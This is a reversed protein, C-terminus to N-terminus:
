PNLILCSSEQAFDEVAHIQKIKTYASDIYFDGQKSYGISKLVHGMFLILYATLQGGAVHKYNKATKLFEKYKKPYDILEDIKTLLELSGHISLTKEKELQKIIDIIKEAAQVYELLSPNITTDKQKLKLKIAKYLDDHKDNLKDKTLCNPMIKASNNLHYRANSMIRGPLIKSLDSFFSPCFIGLTFYNYSAPGEEASPAPIGAFRELFWQASIACNNKTLGMDDFTHKYYEQWERIIEDPDAEINFTYISNNGWKKVKEVNFPIYPTGIFIDKNDSEKTVKTTPTMQLAKDYDEDSITQPERKIERDDSSYYKKLFSGSENFNDEPCFYVGTGPELFRDLPWDWRNITYSTNPEVSKNILLIEVHTNFPSHMNLLHVEINAVAVGFLFLGTV